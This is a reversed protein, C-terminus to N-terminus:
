KSSTSAFIFAVFIGVIYGAIVSVALRALNFGFTRTGAGDALIYITLFVLLFLMIGISTRGFGHRSISIDENRAFVGRGFVLTILHNRFFALFVLSLINLGLVGDGILDVLLGTFFALFLTRIRGTKVPLFLFLTPLITLNIFFPLNFCGYIIVQIIVMLWYTIHFRNNM